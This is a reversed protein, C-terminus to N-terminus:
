AWLGLDNGRAIIIYKSVNFMESLSKFDCVNNYTVNLVQKMFLDVPMIFSRMFYNAAQEDFDTLGDNEYTCLVNENKNMNDWNLFAHGLEHLVEEISEYKVYITFTHDANRKIESNQEPRFIVEGGFYQVYQVADSYKLHTTNSLSQIKKRAGNALSDIYECAKASLLM